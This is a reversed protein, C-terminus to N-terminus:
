SKLLRLAELKLERSYVKKPPMQTKQNTQGIPALQSNKPM